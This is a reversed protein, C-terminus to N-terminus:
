VVVGNGRRVLSSSTGHQFNAQEWQRQARREGAKSAQRAAVAGAAGGLVMGVPFVPGAAIGGIVAGSAAGLVTKAPRNQKMQYKSPHVADSGTPNSSRPVRIPPTHPVITTPGNDTSSTSTSTQVDRSSPNRSHIEEWARQQSAVIAPDIDDYSSAPQIVCSALPPAPPPTEPVEKTLSSSAESAFVDFENAGRPSEPNSSSNFAEDLYYGSYSYNPGYHPVLAQQSSTNM